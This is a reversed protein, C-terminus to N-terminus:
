FVNRYSLAETLHHKEIIHSGELDALTRSIKLVRHYARASLGLQDAAREILQQNQKTLQCHLEVEKSDMDHNAKGARQIQIERAKEVRSRIVQSSEGPPCSQNLQSLPVADVNLHIDIRDLL